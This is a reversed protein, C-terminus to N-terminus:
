ITSSIVLLDRTLYCKFSKIGKINEMEMIEIVHMLENVYVRAFTQTYKCICLVCQNVYTYIVCVYMYPHLYTCINAFNSVDATTLCKLSPM